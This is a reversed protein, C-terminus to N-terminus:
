VRVDPGKLFLSSYRQCANAVDGGDCAKKFFAAASGFAGGKGDAADIVGANHCARHYGLDCGRVFYGRSAEVDKDCGRGVHKYGGVKHCSHGYGHQECNITYIRLSHHFDQKIAEM